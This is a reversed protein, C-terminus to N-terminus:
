TKSHQKMHKGCNPCFPYEDLLDFAGISFRYKCCTCIHYGGGSYLENEYTQWEGEPLEACLKLFDTKSKEQVDLTALEHTFVPRGYIEELYEYFPGLDPGNFM